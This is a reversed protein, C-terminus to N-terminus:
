KAILSDTYAKVLHKLADCDYDLESTIRYDGKHIAKLIERNYFHSHHRLDMYQELNIIWPACQFDFIQVNSLQLLSQVIHRKFSLINDFNGSKDYIIFEGISYPPFYIFWHISDPSSIITKLISGEFRQKMIPLDFTEENYGNSNVKKDFDSLLYTRGVPSNFHYLGKEIQPHKIFQIANKLSTYNLLYEYDNFRNDDYLYQNIAGRQRAFSFFDLGLIVNRTKGRSIIFPLMVSYDDDTAGMVSFNKTKWNNWLSDALEPYHNMAMSSGTIFANYDHNRAVGGIEMRQNGLYKGKASYQQYPDVYFVIGGILLILISISLITQLVIRKYGM